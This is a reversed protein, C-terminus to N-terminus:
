ESGKQLWKYLKGTLLLVFIGLAMLIEPRNEFFPIHTILDTFGKTIAAMSFIVLFAFLLPYRALVPQTYKGANDHVTKVINEIKQLPDKEM